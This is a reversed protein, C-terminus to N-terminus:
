AVGVGGPVPPTLPAGRDGCLALELTFALAAARAPALKGDRGGAETVWLRVSGPADAAGDTSAPGGAGGRVIAERIEVGAGSVASAVDLLPPPKVPKKSTPSPAGAVTVVTLSPHADNSIVVRGGAAEFRTASVPAAPPACITVVDAIREALLDADDRALKRGTRADQIWFTNEVFGDSNTTLVANEVTVGLGALAWALVRVIGVYDKAEVKLVTATPSADSDATAFGISCADASATSDAPSPPRPPTAAPTHTPRALVARRPRSSVFPARTGRPTPRATHPRAAAAAHM